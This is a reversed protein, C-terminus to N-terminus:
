DSIIDPMYESTAAKVLNQLFTRTVIQATNVDKAKVCNVLSPLCYAASKRLDDNTTYNCLPLVLKITEEVYFAYDAGMEEILVSLMNIAMEAEQTEYTQFNEKEKTDQKETEQNLLQNKFVQDVLKFLSPLINPLYQVFNKKMSVCLRQWGSFLYNRQPDTPDLNCQQIQIMLLIIEHSHAQFLQPDVANGIITM